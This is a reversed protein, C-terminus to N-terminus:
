PLLSNSGVYDMAKSFCNETFYNVYKKPMKHLNKIKDCRLIEIM